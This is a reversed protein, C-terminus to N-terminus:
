RNGREGLAARRAHIGSNRDIFVQHAKNARVKNIFYHNEIKAFASPITNLYPNGSPELPELVSASQGIM